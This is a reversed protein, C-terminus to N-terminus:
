IMNLADFDTRGEHSDPSLEPWEALVNVSYFCFRDFNLWPGTLYPFDAVPLIPSLWFPDDIGFLPLHAAWRVPGCAAETVSSNLM